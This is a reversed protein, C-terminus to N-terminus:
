LMGFREGRQEGKEKRGKKNDIAINLCLNYSEQSLHMDKQMQQQLTNQHDQITLEHKINHHELWGMGGEFYNATQIM